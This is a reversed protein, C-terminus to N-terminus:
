AHSAEFHFGRTLMARVQKAADLPTSHIVIAGLRTKGQTATEVLCLGALSTEGTKLGTIGPYPIRLLPNNNYLFLRGGKIPFQLAIARTATARAIRPRDLDARALVALDAACSVNGNDFGDPSTFHTCRLGLTAAEANMMSVFAPVTRAVHQALAIAADNGSPLLLGYLLTELRVRKGRPLVGVGSGQYALAQKTILVPDDPKAHTVVLLATMMKTLSAVPLAQTPNRAWLVRGTDLDFLLGASPEHRFRMVIPEGASPFLLHLPAGAPAPYPASPPAPAPAGAQARVSEAAGRPPGTDSSLRHPVVVALVAAIVVFLAIALLAM